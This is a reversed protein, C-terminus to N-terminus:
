NLGKVRYRKSDPNFQMQAKGGMPYVVKFVMSNETPLVEFKNIDSYCEELKEVEAQHFLEEDAQAKGAISFTQIKISVKHNTKYKKLPEIKIYFVYVLNESAKIKGIPLIKTQDDAGLVKNLTVDLTKPSPMKGVLLGSAPIEKFKGIFTNFDQAQAFAIFFYALTGVFLLKKM